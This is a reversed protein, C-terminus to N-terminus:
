LGLRNRRDEALANVIRDSIIAIFAVCLGAVVGQGANAKTLAIYVEQGLDRTGVLATIVLMSLALMITQNLGLLLQPTALPLKIRWLLQRKTCGAVLGAEILQTPVERLGHAAYRVAPALAYLVVAIMASFDGVRFLMIVPILYVFSPLTQLTDMLGLIVRGARPSEAAWIGLPIGIITALFVSVGCLYITIMAKSWLGSVVIFTM